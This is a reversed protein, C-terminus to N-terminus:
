PMMFLMHVDEAFRAFSPCLKEIVAASFDPHKGIVEAQSRSLDRDDNYCHIIENKPHLIEEPVACRARDGESLPERLVTEVVKPQALLWAELMQKAIGIIVPVTETEYVDEVCDSLCGWGLNYANCLPARREAVNMNAGEPQHVGDVLRLQPREDFPLNGGLLCWRKYPFPKDHGIDEDADHDAVIIIVEAKDILLAKVYSKFMGWRPSRRGARLDRPSPRRFDGWGSSIKRLPIMKVPRGLLQKVLEPITAKDTSGEFIYGVRLPARRNM